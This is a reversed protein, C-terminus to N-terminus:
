YAGAEVLISSVEHKWQDFRISENVSHLPTVKDFDGMNVDAGFSILTRAVNIMSTDLACFLPTKGESTNRTNINAGSRLLLRIMKSSRALHLPSNGGCPGGTLLSPNAGNKFLLKVMETSQRVVAIHIPAMWELNSKRHELANVDSGNKILVDAIAVHNVYCSLHLCNQGYEDLVESDCGNKISDVVSKIDGEICLEHLEM